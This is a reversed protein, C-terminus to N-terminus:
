QKKKKWRRLPYEHGKKTNQDYRIRAGRWLHHTTCDEGPGNIDSYYEIRLIHRNPIKTRRIEHVKIDGIQGYGGPPIMWCPVEVQLAYAIALDGISIGEISLLPIRNM